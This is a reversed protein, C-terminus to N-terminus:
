TKKNLQHWETKMIWKEFKSLLLHMEDGKECCMALDKLIQLGFLNDIFAEM